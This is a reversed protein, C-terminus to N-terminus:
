LLKIEVVMRIMVNENLVSRRELITCVAGVQRGRSTLFNARRCKDRKKNKRKNKENIKSCVSAYKSAIVKRHLAINEM